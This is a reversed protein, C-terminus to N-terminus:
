SPLWRDSRRTDDVSSSDVASVEKRRSAHRGTAQAVVFDAEWLQAYPLVPGKCLQHVARTSAGLASALTTAIRGFITASPTVVPEAPVRTAVHRASSDPLGRELLLEIFRQDGLFKKFILRGRSADADTRSPTAVIAHSSSVETTPVSPRSLLTNM